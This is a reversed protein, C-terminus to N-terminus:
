CKRERLRSDMSGSIKKQLAACGNEIIKEFDQIGIGITRAM